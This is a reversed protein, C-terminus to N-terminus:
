RSNFLVEDNHYRSTIGSQQEYATKKRMAALNFNVCTRMMSESM